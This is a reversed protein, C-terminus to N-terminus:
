TNMKYDESNLLTLAIDELLSEELEVKTKKSKAISLPNERLIPQRMKRM